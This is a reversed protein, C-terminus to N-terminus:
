ETYIGPECLSDTFHTFYLIKEQQTLFKEYVCKHIVSGVLQALANSISCIILDILFKIETSADDLLTLIMVFFVMKWWDLYITTNVEAEIASLSVDGGNFVRSVLIGGSM